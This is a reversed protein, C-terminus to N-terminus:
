WPCEKQDAEPGIRACCRASHGEVRFGTQLDGAKSAAVKWKAHVLQELLRRVFSCFPADARSRGCARGRRPSARDHNGRNGRRRRDGEECIAAFIPLPRLPIGLALFETILRVIQAVIASDLLADFMMEARAISTLLDKTKEIM